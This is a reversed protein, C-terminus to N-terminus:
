TPLRLLILVNSVSALRLIIPVGTSRLFHLEGADSTLAHYLGRRLEIVNGAAMRWVGKKEPLESGACFKPAMPMTMPWSIVCPKSLEPRLKSPSPLRLGHHVSSVAILNLSFALHMASWYLPKTALLSTVPLDSPLTLPRRVSPSVIASLPPRLVAKRAYWVYVCVLGDLNVLSTPSLTKKRENACPQHELFVSLYMSRMSLSTWGGPLKRM